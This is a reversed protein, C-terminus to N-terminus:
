VQHYEMNIFNEILYKAQLPIKHGVPLIHLEAKYGADKFIKLSIRSQEPL